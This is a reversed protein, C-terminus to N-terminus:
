LLLMLAFDLYVSTLEDVDKRIQEIDEAKIRKSIQEYNLQISMSNTPYRFADNQSDEISYSNEIKGKLFEVKHYKLLLNKFKGFSKEPSIKLFVEQQKREIRKEKEKPLPEKQLKSLAERQAKNIKKFSICRELDDLLKSSDHGESYSGEAVIRLEKLVIEIAHKINYVTPIYLNEISFNPDHKQNLMELCALRALELYRYSFVM